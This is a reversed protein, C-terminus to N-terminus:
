QQDDTVRSNACTGEVMLEAERKSPEKGFQAYLALLSGGHLRTVATIPCRVPLEHPIILTDGGWGCIRADTDRFGIHEAFRVGQCTHMLEVHYPCRRSPAYVILNKPDLVRWSHVTDVWFCDKGRPTPDAGLEDEAAMAAGYLLSLLLVLRAGPLM